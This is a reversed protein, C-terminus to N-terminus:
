RLLVGWGAIADYDSGVLVGIVDGNSRTTMIGQNRPGEGFSVPKQCAFKFARNLM